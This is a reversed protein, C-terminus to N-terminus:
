NDAAPKLELLLEQPVLIAILTPVKPSFFFLTVGTPGDDPLPNTKSVYPRSVTKRTDSAFLYTHDAQLGLVTNRLSQKM